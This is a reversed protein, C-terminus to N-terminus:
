IKICSNSYKKHVEIEFAVIGIITSSKLFLIMQCFFFQVNYLIKDNKSKATDVLIQFTKKCFYIYVKMSSVERHVNIGLMKVYRAEVSSLDPQRDDHVLLKQYDFLCCPLLIKIILEPCTVLM